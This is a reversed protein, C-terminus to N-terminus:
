NDRDVKRMGAEYIYDGYHFVFDFMEAAINRWVTYYGGEWQQCGASAFKLQAVDAGPAPLTRARGVRSEAGGARFRYFYHRAPELGGIEVHVSHGSEIRATATGSRILLKMDPNAAIDWSVEVPAVTMGGWPRLPEPAIRTWIVFGDPAPEGSAVGLSFPDARFQGHAPGTSLPMGVLGAGLAAKFLTRRDLELPPSM